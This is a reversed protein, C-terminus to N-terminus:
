AKLLDKRMRYILSHYEKERKQLAEGYAQSDSLYIDFRQRKLDAFERLVEQSIDSIQHDRIFEIIEDVQIDLLTEAWQLLFIKEDLNDLAFIHTQLKKQLALTLKYLASETEFKEQLDGGAQFAFKQHISKREQLFFENLAEKYQRLEVMVQEVLTNEDGTKGLMRGQLGSQLLPLVKEEIVFRKKRWDEYWAEYLDAEIGDGACCAAFEEKLSTKFKRYDDNWEEWIGVAALAFERNEEFFEIKKLARRIMAAMNEVLFAFGARKEEELLALELIANDGDHIAEIREELQLAQRKIALIQQGVTNMGLQLHKQCVTQKVALLENEADTLQPIAEYKRSLKLGMVNFDRIIDNKVDEFHRLKELFEESIRLVAQCYQLASGDIAQLDYGELLPRHDFSASLLVKDQMTALKEQVESLQQLLLPKEIYVKRYLATVAQDSFIPELANELFLNLTFQLRETETYVKNEPSINQMYRKNTLSYCCPLIAALYIENMGTWIDITGRDTFWFRLNKICYDNEMFPFSKEKRMFMFEDYKPIEWNEFDDIVLNEVIESVENKLYSTGDLKRYKDFYDLNAWLIGTLKDMLVGPKNKFFFWRQAKIAQLISEQAKGSLKGIAANNNNSEEELITLQTHLAKKHGALDAQRINLAQLKKANNENEHGECTEEIASVKLTLEDRLSLLKGLEDAM